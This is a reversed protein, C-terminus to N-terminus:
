GLFRTENKLRRNVTEPMFELVFWYVESIKDIAQCDNIKHCVKEAATKEFTFCFKM